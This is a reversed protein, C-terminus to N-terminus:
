NLSRGNRSLPNPLDVVAANDDTQERAFRFERRGEPM